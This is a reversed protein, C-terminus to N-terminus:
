KCSFLKNFYRKGCVFIDICISSSSIIYGQIIGMIIGILISINSSFNIRKALYLSSIIIGILIVVYYIQMIELSSKRKLLVILIYIIPIFILLEIRFFVKKYESLKEKFVQQKDANDVQLEIPEGSMKTIDDSNIGVLNNLKEGTSMSIFWRNDKDVVGYFIYYKGNDYLLTPRYFSGWKSDNNLISKNNSFNYGDKSKAYYINQNSLNTYVLEYYGYENNYTVNGHWMNLNDSKNAIKCHVPKTWNVGDKSEMYDFIGETGQGEFGIGWCKYKEGDWIIAPSVYKFERMVKYKSWNIGDNSVKRFLLLTKGDGGLNSSVRGLYWMELRDLDERYILQSDKLEECGTEENNAIPNALGKPTEWKYLDNSVTISPNEEEGDANPYPTYGMWYKYGNWKKNFKIVNPHTPQNKGALYTEIHLSVSGVSIDESKTNNKLNRIFLGSIVIILFIVVLITYKKINKM